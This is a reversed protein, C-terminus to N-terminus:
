HWSGRFEIIVVLLSGRPGVFGKNGLEIEGDELCLLLDLFFPIVGSANDYRIVFVGVFNDGVNHFGDLAQVKATEVAEPGRNDGTEPVNVGLANDGVGAYLKVPSRGFNGRFQDRDLFVLPRLLIGARLHVLHGFGTVLKHGHHGLGIRGDVQIGKEAARSNIRGYNGVEDKVFGHGLEGMRTGRIVHRGGKPIDFGVFLYYRAPFYDGGFYGLDQVAVLFFVILYIAVATWPHQEIKAVKEQRQGKHNDQIKHHIEGVGHHELVLFAIVVEKSYEDQSRGNSEDAFLRNWVELVNDRIRHKRQIQQCKETFPQHLREVHDGQQRQENEAAVSHFQEHHVQGGAGDGDLGEAM